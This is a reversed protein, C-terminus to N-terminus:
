RYFFILILDMCFNIAALEMGNTSQVMQQFNHVIRVTCYLGWGYVAVLVMQITWVCGVVALEAPDALKTAYVM